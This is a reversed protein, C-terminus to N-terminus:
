GAVMSSINNSDKAAWDVVAREFEKKSGFFENILDPNIIGPFRNKSLYSYFSSWRYEKVLHRAKTKNRVGADRWEPMVFDLANLAIYAQIHKAYRDSDILKVKYRGQFLVGSRSNKLNFFTTFGTGLKQMFLSIGGEALQRILLHYHNPMLIFSLIEVIQEKKRRRIGSHATEGSIAFDSLHVPNIDNFERLGKIFRLYYENSPFIVRKEVGRNYVHYLEGKVLSPRTTSM